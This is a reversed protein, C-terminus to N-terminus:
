TSQHGRPNQAHLGLKRLLVLAIIREVVRIVFGLTIDAPGARHFYRGSSFGVLATRFAGLVVGSVLSGSGAVAGTLAADQGRLPFYKPPIGYLASTSTQAVFSSLFGVLLTAQFYDYGTGRWRPPNEPGAWENDWHKDHNLPKRTYHKGGDVNALGDKWSKLPSGQIDHAVSNAVKLLSTIAAATFIRAWDLGQFQGRRVAATALIMAAADILFEQSFDIAARQFVLRGRPTFSGALGDVAAYQLRNSERWMRDYGRFQNLPGRHEFERGVLTFASHPVLQWRGLPSREWVTGSLSRFRLLDGRADTERWQKHFKETERFIGSNLATEKRERFVDGHDYEKWEGTGSPQTTLLRQPYERVRGDVQERLIEQPNAPDVDRWDTAATGPPVDPQWAQRGATAWERVAASGAKVNGAPDRIESHWTNHADRWAFLSAGKGLARVDRVRTRTRTGPTLQQYDRFSDDWADTGQNNRGSIRVGDNGAGDEWKWTKGADARGTGRITVPGTAGPFTDRRGVIQGMPNRTITAERGTPTFPATGVPPNPQYVPQDTGLFSVVNGNGDTYRVVVRPTFPGGPQATDIWGPGGAHFHREGTAVTAKAGNIERWTLPPRPVGTTLTGAPEWGAATRGIEVTNGNDVVLAGRVFHGNQTFDAFSGDPTMVRVGRVINAGTGVNPGVREKWRYVQYRSDAFIAGPQPFDVQGWKAGFFRAILRGGANSVAGPAQWVMQPPRQEAYRIIKMSNGDALMEGRGSEKGQPSIEQYTPEVRYSGAGDPSLDHERYHLAHKFSNFATYQKQAFTVPTGTGDGPGFTDTWAHRDRHRVGHMLLRGDKDYRFWLWHGGPQLEGRVLGKALTTRGERVLTDAVPHHAHDSWVAGDSEVGFARKGRAVHGGYLGGRGEEWEHWHRKGDPSRLVELPNGGGLVERSYFPTGDAGVLQLSGDHLAKATGRSNYAAVPTAGGAPDPVTLPGAGDRRTWSAPTGPALDVLFHTGDPRGREDLFSIKERLLRGEGDVERWDSRHQGSGTDALRFGDPTRTVTVAAPHGGSLLSLQTAAGPRHDLHLQRHGQIVGGATRLPIDQELLDGNAAFVRREGDRTELHFEGSGTPVVAWTRTNGLPDVTRGTRTVWDIDVHGLDQAAPTPQARDSMRVRETVLRGDAEYTQGDGRPDRLEVRGGAGATVQWNAIQGGPRFTQATAGNWDIEIHQPARGVAVAPVAPDAPTLREVQLSGSRDYIRHDGRHAGPGDDTVQYGNGHPTVTRQPVPQGDAGQLTYRGATLDAVIAQGAIRAGGPDRPALTEQHLDGDASFVQIDGDHDLRFGGAGDRVAQWTRAAGDPDVTTATGAVWDIDVRGLDRLLDPRLSHSLSTREGLLRGYADFVRHDRPDDPDRPDNHGGSDVPEGPDDLRFGGDPLSSVRWDRVSGALDVTRATGQPWAIDVRGLSPPPTPAPGSPAPTSAAPPAPAPSPPQTLALRQAM